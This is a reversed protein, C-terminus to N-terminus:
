IIDEKEKKVKSTTPVSAFSLSKGWFLFLRFVAQTKAQNPPHSHFPMDPLGDKRTHSSTTTSSPATM